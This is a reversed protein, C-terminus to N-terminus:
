ESRKSGPLDLGPFPALLTDIYLRTVEHRRKLNQDGEASRSGQLLGREKGVVALRRSKRRLSANEGGRKVDKDRVCTISLSAPGPVPQQGKNDGVLFQTSTKKTRKSGNESFLGTVM